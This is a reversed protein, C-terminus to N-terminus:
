ESGFAEQVSCQREDELCDYCWDEWQGNVKRSKWGEDKKAEVAEDFGSFGDPIEEGCNDCVVTYTGCFNEISM